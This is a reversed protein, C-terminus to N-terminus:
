ALPREMTVHEIGEELFPEGVQEYGARAYLSVAASQAHLRMRTAGAARAAEEAVQLLEAGIGRGRAAPEVAMRGLRGVGDRVLVRCTGIVVGNDIYVVHMAEDDLGDREAVLDVGQEGCFVRERLALAQEIWDADDTVTVRM